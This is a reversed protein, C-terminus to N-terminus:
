HKCYDYNKDIHNSSIDMKTIFIESIFVSLILGLRQFNLKKKVCDSENVSIIDLEYSRNKQIFLEPLKKNNM